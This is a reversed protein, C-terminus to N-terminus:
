RILRLYYFVLQCFTMNAWSFWERTYRAPNDVDIGEHCQQTGNDTAAILNIKALVENKSSSTLGEMALAIPWVYHPPTHPSGIGQLIQGSYYYPNEPSLIFQRTKQYTTDAIKCYGIFPAALLSPVNADDMLNFHGLGDVEYAWIPQEDPKQQIRAFRQIGTEIDAKLTTLMNVLAPKHLGEEAIIALLEKLVVIIYMNSPVLYGYQCADDSPRFGSWVMGTYGIPAGHGGHSLTDTTPCDPRNFYYASNEHHQETIFTHMILEVTSWFESTLHARYGSTQYLQAALHLPACLSDIEFKREWVYNDIPLNSVDHSYHAGSDTQNFANAYPDIQIYALQQNLVGHILQTINPVQQILQLYPLVQFTSDRLWMAPIDGTAVFIHQDDQVTVTKSITDILANRFLQTAALKPLEIQNAVAKIQQVLQTQNIM